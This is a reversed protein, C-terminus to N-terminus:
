DRIDIEELGEEKIASVLKMAPRKTEFFLSFALGALVLM